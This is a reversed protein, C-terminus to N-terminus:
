KSFTHGKYTFLQTLNRRQWTSKGKPNHEFYLAGNSEDWGNLVLALAQASEDCPKAKAYTGNYYTSFQNKQTIIAMVSNPFRSSDYRNLIVKMVLAMGKVGDCKAEALAVRQLAIKDAESLNYKSKKTAQTSITKAVAVPKEEPTANESVEPVSTSDVFSGLCPPTEVPVGDENYAVSEDRIATIVGAAEDLNDKNDITEVEPIENKDSKYSDLKAVLTTLMQNFSYEGGDAYATIEFDDGIAPNIYDGVMTFTSCVVVCTLVGILMNTVSMKYSKQRAHKGTSHKGTFVFLCALIISLTFVIM